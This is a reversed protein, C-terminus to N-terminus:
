SSVTYGWRASGPPNRPPSGGAMVPPIRGEAEQRRYVEQNVGSADRRM